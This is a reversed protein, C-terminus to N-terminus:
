LIFDGTVYTAATASGDRLEIEAEASIDNDTNLALVTSSGSDYVRATGPKNAQFANKAIFSFAQNGTLYPNADIVSLDVRNGAAWGAGRFDVLDRVSAGVGSESVSTYKYIDAETATGGTLVDRGLGGILTDIGAGGKLVDNGSGGDILDNGAGGDVTDNGALANIVNNISSGNLIDNGTTGTITVPNPPPSAFIFHNATLGGGIDKLILVDSASFSIVADADGDTDWDRYAIKPQLTAWTLAAFAKVDVRDLNLEFDLADGFIDYDQIIDLNIGAAAVFVDAGSEGALSDVGSGGSLTDNGNGGRITDDNPGGSLIDNGGGRDRLFDDGDGGSVTDNGVGGDVSDNGAYGEILDNGNLGWIDNPGNSGKLTDALWSGGINEISVLKDRGYLTTAFGGILDVIVGSRDLVTTGYDIEDTGAGGDIYDNGANGSIYPRTSGSTGEYIKAGGQIHDDGAGALISDDGQGGDIYDVGINGRITDNGAYGDIHNSYGDTGVLLESNNTGKISAM